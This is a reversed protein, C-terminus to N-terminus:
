RRFVDAATSTRRRWRRAFRRWRLCRCWGGALGATDDREVLRQLDRREADVARMVVPILDLNERYQTVTVGQLLTQLTQAVDQSSLGLLRAKDQDIDIRVSKGLNGWNDSVNGVHPNDRMVQSVQGAIRRLVSPDPGTVRFQVPYGVPPGLELRSPRMRVDAFDGAQVAKTLRSLLAERAPVSDTNIM